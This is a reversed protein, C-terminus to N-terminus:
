PVLASGCLGIWQAGRFRAGPTHDGDWPASYRPETALEDDLPVIVVADLKAKRLADAAGQVAGSREVADCSGEGQAQAYPLHHAFLAERSQMQVARYADPVAMGRAVAAADPGKRSGALVIPVDGRELFRFRGRWCGPQWSLTGPRPHDVDPTRFLGFM